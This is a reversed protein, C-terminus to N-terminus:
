LYVIFIPSTWPLFGTSSRNRNAEIEYLGYSHSSMYYREPNNIRHHHMKALFIQHDIIDLAKKLNIFIAANVKSSDTM